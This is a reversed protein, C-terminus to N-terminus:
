RFRNRQDSVTKMVSNTSEYQMEDSTKYVYLNYVRIKSDVRNGEKKGDNKNM